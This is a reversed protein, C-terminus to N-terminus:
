SLYPGKIRIRIERKREWSSLFEFALTLSLSLSLELGERCARGELKGEVSGFRFGGQLIFLIFAIVGAEAACFLSKGTETYIQRDM